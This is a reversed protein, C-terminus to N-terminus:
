RKPEQERILLRLPVGRHRAEDRLDSAIGAARMMYEYLKNPLSYYHNLCTEQVSSGQKRL